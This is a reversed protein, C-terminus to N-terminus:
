GNESKKGLNTFDLHDRCAVDVLKLLEKVSIKGDRYETLLLRLDIDLKKSYESKEVDNRSM